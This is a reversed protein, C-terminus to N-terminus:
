SYFNNSVSLWGDKVFVKLLEEKERKSLEQSPQQSGGQEQDQERDRQQELNLLQMTSLRKEPIGEIGFVVTQFYKMQDYSFKSCDKTETTDQNCLAVADEGMKVKMKMLKLDRNIEGILKFFNEEDGTLKKTLEKCQNLTM